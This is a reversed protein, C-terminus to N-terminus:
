ATEPQTHIPLTKPISQVPGSTGDNHKQPLLSAKVEEIEAVMQKLDLSLIAFIFDDFIHYTDERQEHFLIRPM